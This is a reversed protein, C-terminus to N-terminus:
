SFPRLSLRWRAFVHGYFMFFHSTITIGGPCAAMYDILDSPRGNWSGNKNSTVNRFCFVKDIAYDAGQRLGVIHSQNERKTWAICYTSIYQHFESHNYGTSNSTAAVFLKKWRPASLLVHCAGPVARFSWSPCLCGDYDIWSRM